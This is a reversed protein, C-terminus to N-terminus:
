LHGILVALPIATILTGIITSVINDVAIDWIDIFISM